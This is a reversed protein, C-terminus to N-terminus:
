EVRRAPHTMLYERRHAVDDSGPLGYDLVLVSDGLRGFNEAKSEADIGPWYDISFAALADTETVPQQARPMVLILGAPDGFLVPCLNEWGFAPRWIRWM